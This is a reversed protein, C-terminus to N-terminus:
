KEDGHVISDFTLGDYSLLTFLLTESSEEPRGGMGAMTFFPSNKFAWQYYLISDGSLVEIKVAPNIEQRSANIAKGGWNWHTYFDGARLKYQTGPLPVIEGPKLSINEYTKGNVEKIAIELNSIRPLDTGELHNMTSVPQPKRMETGPKKGSWIILVIIILVVGALILVKSKM